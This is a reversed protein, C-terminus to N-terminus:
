GAAVRRWELPSESFDRAAKELGAEILLNRFSSWKEVSVGYLRQHEALFERIKSSQMPQSFIFGQAEICGEARVRELQDFSEVGEATTVMRLGSALEAIARVITRCDANEGIENVFSRDIKIKDFPFSRLYSLSSYGTGFDDLSIRAGIDHLQRLATLNHENEHLLVSETIELELRRASLGSAGLANIIIAVLNGSSFQIPSLNIAVTLDTPWTAAETCAEHLVWEGLAGILGSEEAIPIFESPSVAGREPHNWRLLAEFGTVENTHLDVLPQYHLELENNALASRLATELDRRSQLRLDMEAEFFRFNSRGDAKARYLAIDAHKLLADSDLADNPAIAVGISASVVVDRGDLRYPRNIRELLRAALAGVEKPDSAGDQVIAFEDGGFRSVTDSSRVCAKLREAVSSLLADGVPHGLTDNVEKFRDLDICLVAVIGKTREIRSLAANLRERFLVRNALDTLPDHHAMHAVRAEALKRETVDINAALAAAVGEYELDQSYVVVDILAGSAKVQRWHQEGLAGSDGAQKAFRERDAPAIVDVVSMALFQESAYGYHAIAAKNVSLFRLTKQDFLWMPVPNSEFLLRFSAERRRLDAIRGREKDSELERAQIAHQKFVEVANAMRSLEDAGEHPIAVELDGGALALISDGLEALRRLLGHGVYIWALTTALLVSTAILVVLLSQSNIIAARSSAVDLTTKSMVTDVVRQVDEALAAQRQQGAVVLRAVEAALALEDRRADFIGEGEAGFDLLKELAGSLRNSVESDSLAAAAERSRDVSAAFQDRLPPLQDIRPTLSVETLIGIVRNAEARLDALAQLDAAQRASVSSLAHPRADHEHDEALAELGSLLDFGADDVIPALQERLTRNAALAGMGLAQRRKAAALKNAIAAALADANQESEDVSIKLRAMVQEDLRAGRLRNLTVALEARKTKLDNVAAALAADDQSEILTSSMASLEGARRALAQAHTIASVGEVEFRYLGASIYSYSFFAVVSALLTLSAVGAFAGYLKGRIGFRVREASTDVEAIQPEETEKSAM